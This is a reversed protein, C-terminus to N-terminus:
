NLIYRFIVILVIAIGLFLGSKSYSEKPSIFYSIVCSIGLVGGLLYWLDYLNM